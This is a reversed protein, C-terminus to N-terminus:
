AASNGWLVEKYHYMGNWKPAFKPVKVNAAQTYASRSLSSWAQDAQDGRATGYINSSGPINICSAWFHKITPQSFIILSDHKHQLLKAACGTKFL